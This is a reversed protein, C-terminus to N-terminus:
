NELSVTLLMVDDSLKGGTYIMIENFILQSLEKASPDKLEKIFKILREEGFLKKDRRAETVGDTYIILMDGKSFIQEENVYKQGAFIGIPPSISKMPAIESTNKRLLPQPHGANCYTIIGSKSDMIGFFVTVFAMSASERIVFENTKSIIVAPSDEYYSYAKITNKVVSALKAAELGKGAVDGVVIGIKGNELEFLDYFDGGVRSTEAASHYLCGFNIGKIKQSPKLLADQLTEAINREREYRRAKEIAMSLSAMLKTAFDIQVKTFAVHASRYIFQIAGVIEEKATLPIILVSGLRYKEMLERNVRKDNIVDNIVVPKKIRAALAVHPVESEAFRRGIVLGYFSRVTWYNNEHLFIDVGEAGLTKGAEFVTGHIIKEVDFAESILANIDNLAECLKSAMKQETIDKIVVILEDFEKLFSASVLVHALTGDAKIIETEFTQPAKNEKIELCKQLVFRKQHRPIFELFSKGDIQYSTYGTIKELCPNFYGLTGDKRVTFILDLSNNLISELHTKTYGM